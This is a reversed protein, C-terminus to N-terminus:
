EIWLFTRITNVDTGSGKINCANFIASKDTGFGLVFGSGVVIPFIRHSHSAPQCLKESTRHSAPRHVDDGVTHAREARGDRLDANLDAIGGIDHGIHVDHGADSRFNEFPEAGIAIKYPSQM